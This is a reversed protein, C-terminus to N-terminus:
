NVAAIVTETHHELFHEGIWEAMVQAPVHGLTVSVKQKAGDRKVVYAATKGPGLGMKAEKIAEKDAEALVVGNLALVVDGVQFGAAEAPSGAVVEVVRHLGADTKEMNVGLWAKSRIKSALKNLCAETDEGCRAHSDGALAAGALVISLGLIGLTFIRKM